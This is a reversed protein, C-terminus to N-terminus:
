NWSGQAPWTCRGSKRGATRIAPPNALAVGVPAFERDRRHRRVVSIQDLRHADGRALEAHPSAVSATNRQPKTGYQALSM